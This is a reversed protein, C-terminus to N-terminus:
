GITRALPSDGMNLNGIKKTLTEPNFPLLLLESAGRRILEITEDRNFQYGTVLVPKELGLDVRAVDLLHHEGASLLKKQIILLDSPERKLHTLFEGPSGFTDIPGFGIKGLANRFIRENTASHTLVAVSTM